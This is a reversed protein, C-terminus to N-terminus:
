EKDEYEQREGGGRRERMVVENEDDQFYNRRKSSRNVSRKIYWIGVSEQIQRDGRWGGIKRKRRKGKRRKNM